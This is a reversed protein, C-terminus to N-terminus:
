CTVGTYSIGGKVVGCAKHFRRQGEQMRKHKIGSMDMRTGCCDCAYVYKKQITRSRTEFNHCRTSELATKNFVTQMVYKFSRKHDMVGYVAHQVLHAVEHWVTRKLFMDLDNDQIISKSFKLTYRASDYRFTCKGAARTMRNSLEVKPTPINNNPFFARAMNLAETVENHIIELIM